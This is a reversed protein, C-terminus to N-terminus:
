GQNKYWRFSYLQKKQQFYEDSIERAILHHLMTTGSGTEIPVKERWVYEKSIIHEYAKRLIWKGINEKIKLNSPIKIAFSKIEEALYLSHVKIDLANGLDSSSFHMHRYLYLLYRQLEEESKGFLYPIYLSYCYRMGFSRNVSWSKEM